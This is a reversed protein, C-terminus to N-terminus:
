KSATKEEVWLTLPSNPIDKGDVLSMENVISKNTYNSIILAASSDTVGIDAKLSDVLAGSLTTNVNLTGDLAQNVESLQYNDKSVKLELYFKGNIKTDFEGTTLGQSAMSSKFLGNAAEILFGDLEENSITFTWSDDDERMEYDGYAVVDKWFKSEFLYNEKMFEDLKATNIVGGDKDETITVKNEAKEIKIRNRSTDAVEPYTAGEAELFPISLKSTIKVTQDFELTNLEELLFGHKINREFVLHSVQASAYIYAGVFAAVLLTLMVAISM